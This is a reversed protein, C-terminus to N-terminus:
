CAWARSACDVRAPRALPTLIDQALQGAPAFVSPRREGTAAAARGDTYGAVTVLVYPGAQRVAWAQRAADTFRAAATGAPGFARLGAPLARHGAASAFAAARRPTPFALM